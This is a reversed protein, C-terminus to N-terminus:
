IRTRPPSTARRCCSRAALARSLVHELGNVPAGRPGKLWYKNDLSSDGLFYVFGLEPEDRRLSAHAATLTEPTHGHYELYFDFFDVM